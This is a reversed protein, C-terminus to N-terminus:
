KSGGSLFPPVFTGFLIGLGAWILIDAVAVKGFDAPPPELFKAQSPEGIWRDFGEIWEPPFLGRFWANLPPTKLAVPDRSGGLLTYFDIQFKFKMNKLMAGVLLSSFGIGERTKAFEKLLEFGKAGLENLNLGFIKGLDFDPSEELLDEPIM